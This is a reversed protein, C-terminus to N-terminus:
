FIQGISNVDIGYWVGCGFNGALGLLKACFKAAGDSEFGNPTMSGPFQVGTHAMLTVATAGPRFDREHLDLMVGKALVDRVRPGSIELVVRGDSQDTVSASGQWRM